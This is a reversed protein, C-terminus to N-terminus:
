CSKIGLLTQMHSKLLRVVQYEESIGLSRGKRESAERLGRKEASGCVRPWRHFGERFNARGSEGNLGGKQGERYM